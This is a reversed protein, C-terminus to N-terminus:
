ESLLLDNIQYLSILNVGARRLKEKAGRERDVVTIALEVAAGKEKILSLCRILTDGSSSVDDVLVYRKGAQISTDVLGNIGHAKSAKRIYVGHLPKRELQALVLLASIISTAGTDEGAVAHAGDEEIHEIMRRAVATLALPNSTIVRGNVFFSTPTGDKMTFPGRQVALRVIDLLEAEHLISDM